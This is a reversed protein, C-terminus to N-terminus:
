DSSLDRVKMDRYLKAIKKGEVVQCAQNYYHNVATDLVNKRKGSLLDKSLSVERHYSIREGDATIYNQQTNLDVVLQPEDGIYVKAGDIRVLIKRKEM